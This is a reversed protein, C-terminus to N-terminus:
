GDADEATGGPPVALVSTGPGAAGGGAPAPVADDGEEPTETASLFSYGLQQLADRLPRGGAPKPAAADEGTLLVLPLHRTLTGLAGRALAAAAGPGHARLADVRDLGAADCWDDLRPWTDGAVTHVLLDAGNAALNWGLLEAADADPEFCWIGGTPGVVRQLPIALLGAAAGLDLVTDGPELRSALMALGARAHCGTERVEQHLASEEALFFDGLATHVLAIGDAPHTTPTMTVGYEIGM